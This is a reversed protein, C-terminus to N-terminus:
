NVPNEDDDKDDPPPVVYVIDKSTSAWQHLVYEMQDTLGDINAIVILDALHAAAEIIDYEEFKEFTSLLESTPPQQFQIYVLFGRATLSAGIECLKDFHKDADGVVAAIKRGHQM